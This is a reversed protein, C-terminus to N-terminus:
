VIPSKGPPSYTPRLALLFALFYPNEVVKFPINNMIFFDALKKNVVAEMAKPLASDTFRMMSTQAKSDGKGRERLMRTDSATGGKSSAAASGVSM